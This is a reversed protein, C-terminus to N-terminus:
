KQQSKKLEDNDEKFSQLEVILHRMTELVQSAEFHEEEPQTTHQAHDYEKSEVENENHSAM